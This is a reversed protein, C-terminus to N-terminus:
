KYFSNYYALVGILGFMGMLMQMLGSPGINKHGMVVAILCIVMIVVCIFANVIKHESMYEKIMKMIM